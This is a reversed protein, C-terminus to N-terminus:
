RMSVANQVTTRPVPVVDWYGTPVQKEMKDLHLSQNFLAANRVASVSVGNHASSCCLVQLRLSAKQTSATTVQATGLMRRHCKGLGDGPRLAPQSVWSISAAVLLLCSTQTLVTRKPFQGSCQPSVLETKYFYIHSGPALSYKHWKVWFWFVGWGGWFFFFSLFFPLPFGWSYCLMHLTGLGVTGWPQPPSKSATPCWLGELPLTETKIRGDVM